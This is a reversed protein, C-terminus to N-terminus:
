EQNLLKSTNWEYHQMRKMLSGKLLRTYVQSILDAKQPYEVVMKSDANGEWYRNWHRERIGSQRFGGVWYHVGHGLVRKLM